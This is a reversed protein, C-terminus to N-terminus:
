DCGELYMTLIPLRPYLYFEKIPLPVTRDMRSEKRSMKCRADDCTGIIDFMTVNGRARGRLLRDLM